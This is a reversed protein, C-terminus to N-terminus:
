GIKKQQEIIMSKLKENINKQQVKDIEKKRMCNKRKLQKKNGQFDKFTTNITYLEYDKSLLIDKINKIIHRESDNNKIGAIKYSQCIEFVVEFINQYYFNHELFYKLNIYKSKSIDGLLELEKLFDIFIIKKNENLFIDEINGIDVLTKKVNFYEFHAQTQIELPSKPKGPLLGLIHIFNDIESFLKNRFSNFDKSFLKDIIDNKLSGNKPNPEIIFTRRDDIKIKNELSPLNKFLLWSSVNDVVISDKGKNEIRLKVNGTVDKLKDYKLTKFNVEDFIVIKKNLLESNFSDNYTENSVSCVLGNFMNDLLERLVGKGAGQGQEEESKGKFLWIVDQKEDNFASFSLWNLFNSLVLDSEKYFLNKLLLYITNCEKEFISFLSNNNDIKYKNNKKSEIFLISNLYVNLYHTEINTTTDYEKFYGQKKTTSAIVKVVQIFDNESKIITKIDETKEEYKKDNEFIIGLKNASFDSSYIMSVKNLKINYIYLVTNNTNMYYKINIDVNKLKYM